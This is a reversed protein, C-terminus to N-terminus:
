GACTTETARRARTTWGARMRRTAAASSRSIASRASRSSVPCSRAARVRAAGTRRSTVSSGTSSRTGSAPARHFHSVEVTLGTEDALQQLEHKWVRSSVRQERGCRGHHVPDDRQPLRRLGDSAVLPSDVSGRVDTHRPGMGREGLSRQAGHRLRRVLAIWAAARFAPRIGNVTYWIRCENAVHSRCAPASRASM